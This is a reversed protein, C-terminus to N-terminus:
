PGRTCLARVANSASAEKHHAQAVTKACAVLVISLQLTGHALKSAAITALDMLIVVFYTM